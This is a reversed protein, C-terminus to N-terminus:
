MDIVVKGDRVILGKSGRQLRQGALNYTGLSRRASSAAPLSPLSSPANDPNMVYLWPISETGETLQWPSEATTGFSYTLDTWFAATFLQAADILLLGEVSTHDDSGGDYYGSEAAGPHVYNNTLGGEIYVDDPKEKPENAKTYGAIAHISSEPGTFELDTCINSQYSVCNSICLSAADKSWNPEVYGALCGFGLHSGLDTIISQSVVCRNIAARNGNVGLRGVIGGCIGEAELGVSAYGDTISCGTGVVGALGGVERLGCIHTNTVASAKIVSSTRMEGVLGGITSQSGCSFESGDVVCSSVATSGAATGVLGGVPSAGSAGTLQLGSVAIDSFVSEVSYASLLGFSSNAASLTAVPNYFKLNRVEAGNTNGFLGGYYNSSTVDLNSITHGDGDLVGSFESISVPYGSADFDAVVRYHASPNRSILSLDGASSILYPNQETGDGGASFSEFPLQTFEVFNADADWDYYNVMFSAVPTGYNLISATWIDGTIDSCQAVDFTRLIQGKDNGVYLVNRGETSEAAYKVKSFFIYERESDSNFLYPDLSQNNVLPSFTQALDGINFRVMRLFKGESSLHAYQVLVENSASYDPENLGVCYRYGAPDQTSPYRDLNTSMTFGDANTPVFGRKLSPVSITYLKQAADDLFLLQEECGPISSLHNWFDVVGEAIVGLSQGQDSFAEFSLSYETDLAVDEYTIIYNLKGDATFLGRSIDLDTFAGLGLMRVMVSESPVDTPLSFSSVLNFHTDYTEVVFRNDPTFVPMYTDENIIMQGNEDRQDFSKEYHTLVFCSQQGDAFFNFFPADIYNILLSSVSFTHETQIGEEGWSAPRMVEIDTLTPDAQDPHVYVFRQYTTWDNVKSSVVVGDGPLETVMEGGISYVQTYERGAYDPTVEHLFVTVELTSSNLDFLKSTIIGFPEIQNVRRGEPIQVTFTGRLKHSADFVSVESSAYDYSSSQALHNTQTYYWILGDPGELFGYLPAQLSVTESIVSKPARHAYSAARRVMGAADGEASLQFASAQGRVVSGVRPSSAAFKHGQFRASAPTFAMAVVLSAIAFLSTKLSFLKM